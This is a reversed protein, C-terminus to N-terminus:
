SHSSTQDFREIIPVNVIVTQGVQEDHSASEYIRRCPRSRQARRAGLLGLCESRSTTGPVAASRNSVCRYQADAQFCSTVAANTRADRAMMTYTQVHSPNEPDTSTVTNWRLTRYYAAFFTVPDFEGNTLKSWDAEDIREADVEREWFVQLEEGEADDELCSLRVLTDDGPALPASVDEVLYRRSRVRVIEGITPPIDVAISM